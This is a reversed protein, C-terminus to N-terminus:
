ESSLASSNCFLLSKGRFSVHFTAFHSSMVHYFKFDYLTIFNSILKFSIEILRKSLQGEIIALTRVINSILKFSIGSPRKNFQQDMEALRSIFNSILKFSISFLRKEMAVNAHLLLSLNRVGYVCAARIEVARSTPIRVM